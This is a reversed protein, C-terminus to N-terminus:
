SGSCGSGHGQPALMRFADAVTAAVRAGHSRVWGGLLKGQERWEKTCNAYRGGIVTSPFQEKAIELEEDTGAQAQPGASATRATRKASAAKRRRHTTTRRIAESYIYYSAGLSAIVLPVRVLATSTSSAPLTSRLNNRTQPPPPFPPLVDVGAQVRGGRRSVLLSTVDRFRVTSAQLLTDSHSHAHFADIVITSIASQSHSAAPGSNPM